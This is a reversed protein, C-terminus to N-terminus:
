KRIKVQDAKEPTLLSFLMGLFFNVSLHISIGFLFLSTAKKVAEMRIIEEHNGSPSAM